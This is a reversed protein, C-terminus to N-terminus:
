FWNSAMWFLGVSLVSLLSARSCRGLFEDYRSVAQENRETCPSSNEERGDEGNGKGSHEFQSNREGAPATGVLLHMLNWKRASADQPESVTQVQGVKRGIKELHRGMDQMWKHGDIICSNTEGLFEVSILSLDEGGTDM